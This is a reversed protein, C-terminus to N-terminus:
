THRVAVGVMEWNFMGPSSHALLSAFGGFLAQLLLALALFVAFLSLFPGFAKSLFSHPFLPLPAWTLPLLLSQELRAGSSGGPGTSHSSPM